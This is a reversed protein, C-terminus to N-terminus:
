NENYATLDFAENGSEPTFAAAKSKVPKKLAQFILDVAKSAMEFTAGSDMARQLHERVTGKHAAYDPHETVFKDWVKDSSSTEGVKALVRAETQSIIDPILTLVSNLAREVGRNSSTAIAEIIGGLDGNQMREAIKDVDIGDTINEGKYAKMLHAIVTNSAAADDEPNPDANPEQRQQQNPPTPKPNNVSANDSIVVGNTLQSVLYDLNDNEDAPKTNGNSQPNANADANGESNIPPNNFINGAPTSSSPM